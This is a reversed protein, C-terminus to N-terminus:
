RRRAEREALWRAFSDISVRRRTGIFFCPFSPDARLTDEDMHLFRAAAPISICDPGLENKLYDLKQKYLMETTM